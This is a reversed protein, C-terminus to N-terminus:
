PEMEGAWLNRIIQLKREISRRAYGLKAAIEANTYGEMKWRAISALEGDGLRALLRQHEEVVQAAFEPTPERSLLQDVDLEETQGTATEVGPTTGGRKQRQEYRLLHSVKRHTIVVLVRWLDNRDKLQPFRGEAVGRCFSDFASLSADEEDAVGPRSGQFMKRALAVLKQFYREWLKQAAVPDGSKLQDIWTTVSDDSAM